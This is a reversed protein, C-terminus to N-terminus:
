FDRRMVDKMKEGFVLTFHQGCVTSYRLDMKNRNSPSWEVEVRVGKKDFWNRAHNKKSSAM